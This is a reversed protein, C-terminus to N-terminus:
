ASPSRLAARSQSEYHTIASNKIPRSYIDYSVRWPWTPIVYLAQLYRYDFPCYNLMDGIVLRLMNHARDNAIYSCIGSAANPSNEKIQDSDGYLDTEEAYLCETQITEDRGHLDNKNHQVETQRRGNNPLKCPILAGFAM